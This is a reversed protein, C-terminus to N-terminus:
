FEWREAELMKAVGKWQVGLVECTNRVPLAIPACANKSTTTSPVRVASM